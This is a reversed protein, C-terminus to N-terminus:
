SGRSPKIGQGGRTTLLSRCEWWRPRGIRSVLAWFRAGGIIMLLNLLPREIPRLWFAAGRWLWPVRALLSAVGRFYVLRGSSPIMRGCGWALRVITRLAYGGRVGDVGANQLEDVAMNLTKLADFRRLDRSETIKGPRNVRYLYYPEAILVVGAAKLFMKFHIPIDEFLYGEPFSFGSREYFERRFWRYNINPELALLAPCDALTVRRWASFGLLTQWLREHYFPRAPGDSQQGILQVGGLLCDATTERAVAMLAAFGKETVRDDSDLFALWEGRAWSAGRNRVASLGQNEQSVLLLGQKPGRDMWAMVKALTGDRSGDDIILCELEPYRGEQWLSELTDLVCDEVEYCPIVVSLFPTKELDRTDRLSSPITNM